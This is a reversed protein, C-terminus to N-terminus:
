GQNSPMSSNEIAQVRHAIHCESFIMRADACALGKLKQSGTALKSKGENM